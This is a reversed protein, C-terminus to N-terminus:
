PTSRDPSAAIQNQFATLAAVWAEPHTAYPIHGAGTLTEVRATPVLLALEDIVAPFLVPSTTGHTLLIPVTTAALAATDISLATPDRLEDLYTLANGEVLARFTEPLQPWSGPGLAMNDIFHEAAARHDGAEILAAVTELPGATAALADAVAPDTNGELLTFLPPEHVAASTVLDPRNTVLTLTVIAGYSNGVAHVPGTGLHEILAALDAADESRSGPHDANQSRSHGRRDWAVVQFREALAGLSPAWGTGDTWSGHTLVIPEGAGVTEYYLKVGNVDAIM